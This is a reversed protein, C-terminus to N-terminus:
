NPKPVQALKASNLRIALRVDGAKRAAEIQDDISPAGGGSTGQGPNPKPTKPATSPAVLGLLTDADAELEEQTSGQLRSVLAPDLGKALAVQLRINQATLEPVQGAAAQAAELQGQMREIDTQSADQLVQYEQLQQQQEPTIASGKATKVEGRLKTILARAKDADFNDDWEPGDNQEDNETAM